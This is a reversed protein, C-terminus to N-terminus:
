DIIFAQMHHSVRKDEPPLQMYDGYQTSLYEDFRKLYCKEHVLSSKSLVSQRLEYYDTLEKAYVSKFM